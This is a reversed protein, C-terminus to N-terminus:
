KKLWASMYDEDLKRKSFMTTLCHGRRMEKNRIQQELEKKLPETTEGVVEDGTIYVVMVENTFEVAKMNKPHYPQYEYSQPYTETDTNDHNVLNSSNENNRLEDGSIHDKITHVTHNTDTPTKDYKRRKNEKKNKRSLKDWPDWALVKSVSNLAKSNGIQSESCPSENLSSCGKDTSPFHTSKSNSIECKNCRTSLLNELSDRARLWDSKFLNDESTNPSLVLSELDSVLASVDKNTIFENSARIKNDRNNWHKVKNVLKQKLGINNDSHKILSGDSHTSQMAKASKTKQRNTGSFKSRDANDDASATDQLTASQDVTSNNTIKSDQSPKGSKSM